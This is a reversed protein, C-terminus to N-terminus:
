RLRELDSISLVTSQVKHAKVYDRMARRVFASFTLDDEALLPRISERLEEQVRVTVAVM